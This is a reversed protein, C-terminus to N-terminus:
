ELSIVGDPLWGEWYGDMVDLLVEPNGTRRWGATRSDDVVARGARAPRPRRM